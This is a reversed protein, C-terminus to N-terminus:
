ASRGDEEDDSGADDEVPEDPPEEAVEAEASAPMLEYVHELLEAVGNGTEASIPLLDKLGLRRFEQAYPELQPTDMKNVALILPKGLVCSCGRSNM